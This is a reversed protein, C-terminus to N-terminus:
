FEKTNGIVGKVARQKSRRTPFLVTPQMACLRPCAEYADGSLCTCSMYVSYPRYQTHHVVSSAGGKDRQSRQTYVLVDM